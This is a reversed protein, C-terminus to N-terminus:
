QEPKISVIEIKPESHRAIALSHKRYKKKVEDVSLWVQLNKEEAYIYIQSIAANKKLKIKLPKNYIIIAHVIIM